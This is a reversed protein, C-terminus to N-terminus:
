SAVQAIGAFRTLGADTSCEFDFKGAGLTMADGASLTWTFLTDTGDLVATATMDMGGVTATHAGSWDLDVVRVALSVPDGSQWRLRLEIPLQSVEIM